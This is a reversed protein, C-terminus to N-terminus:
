LEEFCDESLETRIGHEIRLLFEAPWAAVGACHRRLSPSLGRAQLMMQECGRSKDNTYFGAEETEWFCFRCLEPASAM